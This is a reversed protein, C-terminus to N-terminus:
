GRGLLKRLAIWLGAVIAAAIIVGVAGALIYVMLWGINQPPIGFTDTAVWVLSALALVGIIISRRHRATAKSM